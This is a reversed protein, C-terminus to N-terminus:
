LLEDTAFTEDDAALAVDLSSLEADPLLPLPVEFSVFEPFPSASFGPFELEVSLPPAESSM